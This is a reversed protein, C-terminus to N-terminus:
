AEIDRWRAALAAAAAPVDDPSAAAAARVTLAGGRAQSEDLAAALARRTELNRLRRSFSVGQGGPRFAVLRGALVPRRTIRARKGEYADCVVQVIPPAGDADLARAGQLFAEEGDGIDVICADIGTMRGRARAVHLDGLRSPTASWEIFFASPRGGAVVAAQMGFPSATILLEDGM